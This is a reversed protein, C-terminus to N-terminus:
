IDAINGSLTRFYNHKQLKKEFRFCKGRLNNMQLALSCNQCSYWFNRELIRFIKREFDSLLKCITKRWFCNGEFHKEPCISHLKSLGALVKGGFTRFYKYVWLKKKFFFINKRLFYEEFFYHWFFARMKYFTDEAFYTPAFYAPALRGDQKNELWTIKTRIQRQDSNPM